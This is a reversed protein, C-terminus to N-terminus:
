QSSLDLSRAYKFIWLIHFKYFICQSIYSSIHEPDILIDINSIITICSNKRSSSSYIEVINQSFIREITSFFFTIPITFSLKTRCKQYRTGGRNRIYWQQLIPVYFSLFYLFIFKLNSTAQVQFHYKDL